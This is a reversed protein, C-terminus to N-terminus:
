CKKKEKEKMAFILFTGSYPVILIIGQPYPANIPPFIREEPKLYEVLKVFFEEDVRITRANL